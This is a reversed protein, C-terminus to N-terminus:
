RLHLIDPKLLSEYSKFAATYNRENKHLQDALMYAELMAMSAGQGAILTLCGCADGVLTVRGKSWHPLRVQELTDFFTIKEQPTDNIVGPLIWKAGDYAKLLIQKHKVSFSKFLLRNQAM